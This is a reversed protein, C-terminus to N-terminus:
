MKLTIPMIGIYAATKAEIVVPFTSVSIKIPQFKCKKEDCDHSKLWDQIETKKDPNNKELIDLDLAEKLLQERMDEYPVHLYLLHGKDGGVQAMDKVLAIDQPDTPDKAGVLKPGWLPLSTKAKAINADPIESAQILQFSKGLAVVYAPRAELLTSVGYYFASIQLIVIVALDFVLYKKKPNFVVLTLAPGLVVDIGTILFFIQYGGIASLMPAPYWMYWCLMLLALGVVCSILFHTGSARYRSITTKM